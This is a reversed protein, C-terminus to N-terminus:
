FYNSHTIYHIFHFKKERAISKPNIEFFDFQLLMSRLSLIIGVLAMCKAEQFM